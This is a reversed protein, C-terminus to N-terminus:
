EPFLRKKCIFCYALVRVCESVAVNGSLVPFVPDILDIM